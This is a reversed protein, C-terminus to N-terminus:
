VMTYLPPRFPQLLWLYSTTQKAQTLMPLLVTRSLISNVLTLPLANLKIKYYAVLM